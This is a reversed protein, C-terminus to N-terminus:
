PERRRFTDNSYECERCVGGVKVAGHIDCRDLRFSEFDFTVYQPPLTVDMLRLDTLRQFQNADLRDNHNENYNQNPLRANQDRELGHLRTMADLERRRKDEAKHMWTMLISRAEMLGKDIGEEKTALHAFQDSAKYEKAKERAYVAREEMEDLIKNLQFNALSM